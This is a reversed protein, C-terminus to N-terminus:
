CLSKARLVAAAAEDTTGGISSLHGMKRGRRPRLKEYLHLKVGPVTLAEDFRPERARGDENLWVDGLLNAIAAPQVVTTEGLPLNCVARM